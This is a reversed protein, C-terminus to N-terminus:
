GLAIVSLQRGYDAEAAHTTRRFSFYRDPQAYT